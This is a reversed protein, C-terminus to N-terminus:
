KWEEVEEGKIREWIEDDSFQKLRRYEFGPSKLDFGCIGKYTCYDCATKNGAEYPSIEINGELIESGLEKIKRDVFRGLAQFHKTSAASSFRSLSGDKNFSVPLVSSKNEMQTDMLRIVSNDSNVLGNM